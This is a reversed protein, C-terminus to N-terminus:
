VARVSKGYLKYTDCVSYGEVEEKEPLTEVVKTEEEKRM